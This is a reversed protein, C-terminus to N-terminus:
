ERKKKTELLDSKRGSAGMFGFVHQMCVCFAFRPRSTAAPPVGPWKSRVLQRFGRANNAISQVPGRLCEGSREAVVRARETAVVRKWGEERTDVCCSASSKAAIGGDRSYMNWPTTSCRHPRRSLTSSHYLPPKIGGTSPHYSGCLVPWVLLILPLPLSDPLPTRSLKATPYDRKPQGRNHFPAASFPLTPLPHRPPMGM